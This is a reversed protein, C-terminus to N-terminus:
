TFHGNQNRESFINGFECQNDSFPTFGRELRDNVITAWVLVINAILLSHNMSSYLENFQEIRRKTERPIIPTTRIGNTLFPDNWNDKTPTKFEGDVYHRVIERNRIEYMQIYHLREILTPNVGYDEDFVTLHTALRTMDMVAQQIFQATSLEKNLKGNIYKLSSNFAVSYQFVFSKNEKHINHVNSSDTILFPPLKLPKANKM